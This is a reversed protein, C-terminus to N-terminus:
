GIRKRNKVPQREGQFWLWVLSILYLGFCALFDYHYAVVLFVLFLTAYLFAKGISSCSFTEKWWSVKRNISEQESKEPLAAISPQFDETEIDVFNEQLCSVNQDEDLSESISPMPKSLLKSRNVPPRKGIGFGADKNRSKQAKEGAHVAKLCHMYLEVEDDSDSESESSADHHRQNIDPDDLFICSGGEAAISEDEDVEAMPLDLTAKENRKLDAQKYIETQFHTNTHTNEKEFASEEQVNNVLTSLGDVEKQTSELGEEFYVVENEGDDIKTSKSETDRTKSVLVDENCDTNEERTEIETSAKDGDNLDTEEEGQGEQVTTQKTDVEQIEGHHKEKQLVTKRSVAEEGPTKEMESAQINGKEVEERDKGAVIGWIEEEVFRQNEVFAVAANNKKERAAVIEWMLEEKMKEQRKEAIDGDQIELAVEVGEDELEEEHDEEVAEIDGAKLSIEESEEEGIFINIEEEEVMMEWNKIETADGSCFDGLNLNESKEPVTIGEKLNDELEMIIDGHKQHGSLIVSDAKEDIVETETPTITEEAYSKKVEKNQEEVDETEKKIEPSTQPATVDKGLMELSSDFNHVTDKTYSDSICNPILAHLAELATDDESAIITISKTKNQGFDHDDKAKTSSSQEKVEDSFHDSESQSPELPMFSTELSTMYNQTEIQELLEDFNTTMQKCTQESPKTQETEVSPQFDLTLNDEQKEGQLDASETSMQPDLVDTDLIEGTHPQLETGAKPEQFSNTCRQIKNSDQYTQADVLIVNQAGSLSTEEEMSPFHVSADQCEQNSSEFTKDVNRQAKDVVACAQTQIICTIDTTETYTFDEVDPKAKVPDQHDASIENETGARGFVQHYLPAVVTGFTFSNSQSVLGESSEAARQNLQIAKPAANNKCECYLNEKQSSEEPRTVWKELNQCEAPAPEDNSQLTNDVIDSASEGRPLTSSDALNISESKETQSNSNFDHAPSMNQLVDHLPNKSTELSELVLQSSQTISSGESFTEVDSRKEEPGTQDTEASSEDSEADIGGNRQAFYDRVRAMRAAKRRSRRSSNRKSKAQKTMKRFHCKWQQFTRWLPSTRVIKLCSKKKVTENSPKEREEKARQHCVLVYNRNNNNAWFTGVSTEYRLCFDVRAGQEGFPPVLTLKFSFCDMLGESSGPIYEALLDFHTAWSDLSTRIYVAKDFSINLVRIVGKLITTGPLLEITELEVKQDRVKACLEELSFPLSFTHTSIFYEELDKDKGEPSVYEPLKPVDWIDFEKVQVLNLGKADAFSVRRSGCLPPVPESDEDGLSSKRRPLPSSKPRIGIVIDGEDDDVDVSIFGPVGLLNCAGSPSPQGVFEMPRGALSEAPLSSYQKQKQCSVNLMSQSLLHLRTVSSM